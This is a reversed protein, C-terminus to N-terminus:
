PSGPNQRSGETRLHVAYPKGKVLGTRAGDINGVDPKGILRNGM